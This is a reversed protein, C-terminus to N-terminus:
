EFTSATSSYIKGRGKGEKREKGAKRGRGRRGAM